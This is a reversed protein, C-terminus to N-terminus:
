ASVNLYGIDDGMIVLINPPPQQSQAPGPAVAAALLLGSALTGLKPRTLHRAKM